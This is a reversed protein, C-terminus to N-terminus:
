KFSLSGLVQDIESEEEENTFSVILGLAYGKIVAVYSKQKITQGVMSIQMTMVDFDMGGIQETYIEKPFSYELQSSELLRKGHFHCDKGNKIGPMHIVQEAICIINPNFPVPEGLPYKLITLLKFVRLESAKILAKLNKDDGAIMEGGIDMFMKQTEQDQVSWEFPIPLTLGFYENRYVSNEISGFDIKDSTTEHCAFITFILLLGRIVMKKM